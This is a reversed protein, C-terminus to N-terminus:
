NGLEICTVDRKVRLRLLLRHGSNSFLQSPTPLLLNPSRRPPIELLIAPTLQGLVLCLIGLFSPPAAQAPDALSQNLRANYKKAASAPPKTEPTAVLRKARLQLEDLVGSAPLLNKGRWLAGMVVPSFDQLPVIRVSASSKAKPILVSLGIGFGNAVYTEILDISSSKWAPSGISVSAPSAKNSINAFPKPV